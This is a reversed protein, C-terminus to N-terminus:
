APQAEARAAEAMDKLAQFRVVQGGADWSGGAIERCTVWIRLGDDEAIGLADTLVRHADAVLEERRRQIVPTM